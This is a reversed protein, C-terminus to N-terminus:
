NIGSCDGPQGSSRLLPVGCYSSFTVSKVVFALGTGGILCSSGASLGFVGAKLAMGKESTLSGIQWSGKGVNNKM